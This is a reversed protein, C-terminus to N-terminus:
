GSGRESGATFFYQLHVMKFSTVIIKPLASVMGEEKLDTGRALGLHMRMLHARPHLPYLRAPTLNECVCVCVCVRVCACM